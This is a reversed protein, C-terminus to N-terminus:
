GIGLMFVFEVRVKRQEVAIEQAENTHGRGVDDSRRYANRRSDGDAPQRRLTRSPDFAIRRPLVALSMVEAIYSDSEALTGGPRHDSAIARYVVM